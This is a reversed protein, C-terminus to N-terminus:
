FSQFHCINQGSEGFGPTPNLPNLFLRGPNSFRLCHSKRRSGLLFKKPKSYCVCLDRLLLASTRSLLCVTGLYSVCLATILLACAPALLRGMPLVLVPALPPAHALAPRPTLAPAPSCCCQTPPVSLEFFFEWSYTRSQVVCHHVYLKPTKQNNNKQKSECGAIWGGVQASSSVIYECEIWSCAELKQLLNSTHLM